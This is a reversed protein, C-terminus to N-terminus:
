VRQQDLMYNAMAKILSSTFQQKTKLYLLGTVNIVIFLRQSNNIPCSVKVKDYSLFDDSDYITSPNQQVTQEEVDYIILNLVTTDKTM